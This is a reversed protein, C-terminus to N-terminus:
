KYFTKEFAQFEDQRLVCRKWWASLFGLGYGTLQTFAAPVSLLGVHLSRNTVSSHTCIILAYALLPALMWVCWPSLLLLLLVGLTFATPLLHVPKM